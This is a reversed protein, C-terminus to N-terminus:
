HYEFAGADAGVGSPRPQGDFDTAVTYANGLDDYFYPAPVGRDIAPSSSTLRFDKNAADVFGGGAKLWLNDHANVNSNTASSYLGAGSSVGLNNMVECTNGDGSLYVSLGNGALTNHAFLVNQSGRFGPAAADDWVFLGANANDYVLNNYVWVDHTSYNADESTVGVGKPNHHVRNSHVRVYSAGDIYIGPASNNYVDNGAVEGRRAGLWIDIGEQANDRVTNGSVVFGDAILSVAQSNGALSSRRVLNNRVVVNSIMTGALGPYNTQRSTHTSIGHRQSEAVECGEVTLNDAALVVGTNKSNIVKLGSLRVYPHRLEVLGRNQDAGPTWGQTSGDLVATGNFSKFVVEQGALGGAKTVLQEFYTGGEVLVTTGPVARAAAAGLSRLATEPTAGDSADSGRTSVYIVASTQGASAATPTPAPTPTPTPTPAPDNDAITVAASAPTSVAYSRDAALTVNVTEPNESDADDLPTIKVTVSAAGAPIVASGGLANYDAGAAATGGVKYYVTLPKSTAPARRFTYAGADAGAEAAQADSANVTVAPLSAAAAAGGYLAGCLAACVCALLALCLCVGRLSLPFKEM